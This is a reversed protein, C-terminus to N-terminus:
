KHCKNTTNLSFWPSNPWVKQKVCINEDGGNQFGYNGSGCSKETNETAWKLFNFYYTQLADCSNAKRVENDVEIGRQTDDFPM